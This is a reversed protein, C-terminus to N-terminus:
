ERGPLFNWFDFMMSEVMETNADIGAKAESKQGGCGKKYAGGYFRM